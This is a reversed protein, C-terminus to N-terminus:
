SNLGRFDFRKRPTQSDQSRLSPYVPIQADSHSKLSTTKKIISTKIERHTLQEM